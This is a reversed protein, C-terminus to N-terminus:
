GERRPLARFMIVPLNRDRARIERLTEIGDKGPMLVDLLVASLGSNAALCDLVEHGNEALEVGFGQYRLAAALFSGRNPKTTVWM